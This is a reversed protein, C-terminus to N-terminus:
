TGMFHTSKVTYRVSVHTYMSTSLIAILAMTRKNIVILSLMNGSCSWARPSFLELVYTRRSFSLLLKHLFFIKGTSRTGSCCRSFHWKVLVDLCTTVSYCRCCTNLIFHLKNIHILTKTYASLIIRNGTWFRKGASISFQQKVDCRRLMERRASFGNDEWANRIVHLTDGSSMEYIQHYYHSSQATCWSTSYQFHTSNPTYHKVLTIPLKWQQEKRGEAM